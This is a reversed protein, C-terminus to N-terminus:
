RSLRTGGPDVWPLFETEQGAQLLVGKARIELVKRGDPLREGERYIRGDLSAFGGAEDPLILGLSPTAYGKRPKGGDGQRPPMGFLGASLGAIRPRTAAGEPLYSAARRLLQREEQSPLDLKQPQYNKRNAVLPGRPPTHGWEMWLLFGLCLVLALAWRFLILRRQPHM